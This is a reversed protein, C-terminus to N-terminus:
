QWYGLDKPTYRMLQNANLVALKDPVKIDGTREETTGLLHAYQRLDATLRYAAYTVAVHQEARLLNVNSEMVAKYEEETEEGAAAMTMRFDNWLRAPNDKHEDYMVAFSEDLSLMMHRYLLYLMKIKTRSQQEQTAYPDDEEGVDLINSPFLDSGTENLESEYAKLTDDHLENGARAAHSDAMYKFFFWKVHKNVYAAFESSSEMRATENVLDLCFNRIPLAHDAHFPNMGQILFHFHKRKKSSSTSMSSPTGDRDPSVADSEERWAAQLSLQLRVMSAFSDGTFGWPFDLYLVVLRTRLVDFYRATLDFLDQNDKSVTSVGFNKVQCMPHNAINEFLISAQKITSYESACRVFLCKLQPATCLAEWGFDHFHKDYHHEYEVSLRTVLGSVVMAHVFTWVSDSLVRMRIMLGFQKSRNTAVECIAYLGCLIEQWGGELQFNAKDNKAENFHAAALAVYAHYVEDMSVPGTQKKSDEMTTVTISTKRDKKVQFEIRPGHSDYVPMSSISTVTPAYPPSYVISITRGDPFTEFVEREELPNGSFVGTSDYADQLSILPESFPCHVEQVKGPFKVLLSIFIVFMHWNQIEFCVTSHQNCQDVVQMLLSYLSVHIGDKDVYEPSLRVYVTSDEDFPTLVFM